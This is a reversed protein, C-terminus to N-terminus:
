WNPLQNKFISEYEKPTWFANYGLKAFEKKRANILIRSGNESVSQQSIDLKERKTERYTAFALLALILEIVLLVLPYGKYPTIFKAIISGVVTAVLLFVFMYTVSRRTNRYCNICLTDTCSGGFEFEKHKTTHSYQNFTVKYGYTKGTKKGYYFTFEQTEADATGCICCTGPNSTGSDAKVHREM